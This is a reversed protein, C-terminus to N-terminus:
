SDQVIQEIQALESTHAPQGRSIKWILKRLPSYNIYATVFLLAATFILNILLM